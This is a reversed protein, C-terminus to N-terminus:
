CLGGPQQDVSRCVTGRMRHLYRVRGDDSRLLRRGDSRRLGDHGADLMWAVLMWARAVDNDERWKLNWVHDTQRFRETPDDTTPEIAAARSAGGPIHVTMTMPITLTSCNRSIGVRHFQNLRNSPEVSASHIKWRRVAKPYREPRTGAPHISKSRHKGPRTERDKARLTRDTHSGM